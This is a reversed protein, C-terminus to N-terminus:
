CLKNNSISGAVQILKTTNQEAGSNNIKSEEGARGMKKKVQKVGNVMIFSYFGYM